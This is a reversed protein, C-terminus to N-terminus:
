ACGRGAGGSRAAAGGPARRRALGEPRTSCATISRTACSSASEERRSLDGLEAALRELLEADSAPGFIFPLTRVPARAADRLCEVQEHQRVARRHEVVVPELGPVAAIREV